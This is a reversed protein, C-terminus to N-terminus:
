VEDQERQGFLWPMPVADDPRDKLQGVARGLEARSGEVTQEVPHAVSTQDLGATLLDDVSPQAAVVSHGVFSGRSDHPLGCAQTGEGMPGPSHEVGM